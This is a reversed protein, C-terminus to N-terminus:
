FLSADQPSSSTQVEAPSSSSLTAPEFEALQPKGGAGRKIIEIRKEAADLKEQCVKVLKVGEEYRVILEELPMKDSEMAEVIQELREMASEFNSESASVRTAAM